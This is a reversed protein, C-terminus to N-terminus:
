SVIRQVTEEISTEGISLDSAIQGHKMVVIRDAVAFVDNFRHSVLIVICGREKERHIEALVRDVQGAGLAATPEDLLLAKPQFLTARAIAVAQQQGGSLLGVQKRLNPLEIGLERMSEAVRRVMHRRKLFGFVPTAVERGLFMNALVTQQPALALDQYIMEIGQRRRERVSLSAITRDDLIVQGTDLRHLGAIAKLLTSKGAGNDGVIATVTGAEFRATINNLVTTHGFAKTINRLELMM